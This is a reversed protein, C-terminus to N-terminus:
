QTENLLMDLTEILKELYLEQSIEYKLLSQKTNLQLELGLKLKTPELFVALVEKEKKLAYNIENRVMKSEISNSTIFVLFITCDQLTKEIEAPWETTLPIGEDFWINYGQSKIWEMEPYVNRKDKHAYSVFIYPESGKYARFPINFALNPSEVRYEEIWNDLEIRSIKNKGIELILYKGESNIELFNIGKKFSQLSKRGYNELNYCILKNLHTGLLFKEDSTITLLKLPEEILKSIELEKLDWIITKEKSSSILFKGSSSIKIDTISFEHDQLTKLLIGTKLDWIKIDYDDSWSVIIEDNPSISFSTIGALHGKFTHILTGSLNWIKITKDLSSTVIKNGDNSIKISTIVDSHGKLKQVIKEYAYNWIWISYDDTTFILLDKKNHLAFNDRIYELGVIEKEKKFTDIDWIELDQNNMSYIFKTLDNSFNITHIESITTIEM